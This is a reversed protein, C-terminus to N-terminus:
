AGRRIRKIEAGADDTDLGPKRYSELVYAAGIARSYAIVTFACPDKTGLDVGLVFRWDDALEKPWRVVLMDDTQNFVRRDTDFIWLGMYERLYAPTNENWKLSDRVLKLQEEVDPIFPNDHMTWHHVSWGLDGLNRDLQLGNCIKYFPNHRTNSPTGTVMISAKYDFTAPLLVQTLLYLMEQGMNQAEDLCIAPPSLGRMKDMERRSGAGYVMIASDNPLYIHGNQADFKLGLGLDRDLQRAPPWIIGKASARNMNIYIPYSGDHQFGALMLKLLIGHSKGSRRGCCAAILRSPDELFERQKGFSLRDLDLKEVREARRRAEAIIRREQSTLARRPAMRNPPTM